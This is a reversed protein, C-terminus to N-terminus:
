AAAEGLRHVHEDEASFLKQAELVFEPNAVLESALRTHGPTTNLTEKLEPNWGLDIRIKDVRGYPDRYIFEGSRTEGAGSQGPAPRPSLKTAVPAYEPSVRLLRMAKEATEPDELRGVFAGGIMAEVKGVGLVDDPHQSAPYVATNWKRSDRSLRVFLARGSGWNGMFHNEDLFINKRLKMSRGYIFRSTFFAALHLLPQAYLEETSWDDRSIDASPLVLGPMSIVVLTKDDAVNPAIKDSAHSPFILEGLPYEAADNLLKAVHKGHDNSSNALVDIVQRPNVTSDGGVMRIADRLVSDTEPNRLIASPLLMRFTDFALQKREVQARARAQMYGRSDGEFAWGNPDPVLGWPALTGPAEDTLNLHRSHPALAPMECLRALPGSPDLIISPQGRRAGHYAFTGILVSKGGGPESIIPYVGPANGQEPGFHGDHRVARRATGITYGIYPGTPTGVSSSVHPMSAALYGVPMQRQYGTTSYPEGPIFERLLQRQGRPHAMEIIYRDAYTDILSQVRRICEEQTDAYVAARVPGVFRAADRQEAETIQDHNQVAEVIARDVAPPPLEGHEDYHKRIGLARNRDYEAVKTIERGTLIRGSASWEVPFELRDSALMWPDRGSEPFKLTPMRGVTVVAVHRTIKRGNVRAQIEVTDGMPTYLWDVPDTFAFLDQEDWVAGSIGAHKPVPMGIAISRHMLWAMKRPTLPTGDIGSGAIYQNMQAVQDLVKLADSSLPKADDGEARLQQLVGRAPTMGLRIGIAVMKEDVPATMLRRQQLALYNNFDDAVGPVDPLRAPRNPFNRDFAAPTDEALQRAFEYVPFPKPTTRIRTAHGDGTGLGALRNTLSEWVGRRQSLTNFAWKQPAMEYWAWLGTTTAQLHGVIERTSLDMHASRRRMFRTGLRNLDFKPIQM